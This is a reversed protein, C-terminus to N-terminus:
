LSSQSLATTVQLQQVVPLLRLASQSRDSDTGESFYGNLQAEEDYIFCVM